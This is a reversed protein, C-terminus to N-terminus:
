SVTKGEDGDALAIMHWFNHFSVTSRRLGKTWEGEECPKAGPRPPTVEATCSEKLTSRAIPRYSPRISPAMGGVLLRSSTAVYRLKPTTVEALSYLAADSRHHFAAHDSALSSLNPLSSGCSGAFSRLPCVFSFPSISTPVGVAASTSSIFSSLRRSHHSNYM